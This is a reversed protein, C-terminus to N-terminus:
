TSVKLDYVEITELFDVTWTHEWVFAYPLLNSRATIFTLTLEPDDYLSPLICTSPEAYWTELDGAKQNWLLNKLTKVM